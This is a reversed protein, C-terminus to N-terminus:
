FITRIYHLIKIFSFIRVRNVLVSNREMSKDCCRESLASSIYWTGREETNRKFTSKVSLSSLSFDTMLFFFFYMRKKQFNFFQSYNVKGTRIIFYRKGFEHTFSYVISLFISVFETFAIKNNARTFYIIRL